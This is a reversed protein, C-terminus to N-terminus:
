AANGRVARRRYRRTHVGRHSQDARGDGPNEAAYEDCILELAATEIRKLVDNRVQPATGNQMQLEVQIFDGPVDPFLVTRVIGSQMIGFTLILCRPLSSVAVYDRPQELAARLM